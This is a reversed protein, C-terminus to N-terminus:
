CHRMGHALRSEFEGQLEPYNSSIIRGAAEIERTRPDWVQVVTDRKHPELYWGLVEEVSPLPDPLM